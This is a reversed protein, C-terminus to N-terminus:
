NTALELKEMAKVSRKFFSEAEKLNESDPFRAAFNYYSKTCAEYREFKKL